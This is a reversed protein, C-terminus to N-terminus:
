GALCPPHRLCYDWHKVCTKRWIQGQGESEETATWLGRKWPLSKSILYEVDGGVLHVVVESQPDVVGYGQKDGEYM